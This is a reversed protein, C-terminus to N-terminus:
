RPHQHGRSRERRGVNAPVEWRRRLGASRQNFCRLRAFLLLEGTNGVQAAIVPATSGWGVGRERRWDTLGERGMVSVNIYISAGERRVLESNVGSAGM